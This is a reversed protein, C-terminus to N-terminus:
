KGVALGTIGHKALTIMDDTPFWVIPEDTDYPMCQSQQRSTSQSYKDVNGYWRVIEDHEEAIYMPFHDREKYSWVVYLDTGTSSSTDYAGCNSGKFEERHEVYSRADKNAIRQISM